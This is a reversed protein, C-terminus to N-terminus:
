ESANTDNKNRGSYKTFQTKINAWVHAASRPDFAAPTPTWVWDELIGFGAPKETRSHWASLELSFRIWPSFMTSPTASIFINLISSSPMNSTNSTFLGSQSPKSTDLPPVTVISTPPHQPLISSNFCSLSLFIEM